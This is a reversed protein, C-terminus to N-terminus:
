VRAYDERRFSENGLAKFEESLRRRKEERTENVCNTRSAKVTRCLEDGKAWDRELREEDMRRQKRMLYKDVRAQAANRTKPDDSDLGELMEYVKAMEAQEDYNAPAGSADSDSSSSDSM